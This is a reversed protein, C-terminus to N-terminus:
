YIKGNNKIFKIHNNKQVIKLIDRLVNTFNYINNTVKHKFILFLM